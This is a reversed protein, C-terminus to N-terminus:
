ILGQMLMELFTEGCVWFIVSSILIVELVLIWFFVSCAVLRLHRRWGNRYQLWCVDVSGDDNVNISANPLSSRLESIETDVVDASIHVRHFDVPLKLSFPM